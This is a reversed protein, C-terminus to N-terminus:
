PKPDPLAPPMAPPGPPTTTEARDLEPLRIAPGTIAAGTPLPGCLPCDAACRLGKAALARSAQKRVSASPDLRRAEDLAVHSAPVPPVMQGLSEAAEARVKPHDDERLAEVLAAVASPHCRWSAEALERAARDRRRWAPDHLGRIARDVRDAPAHCDPCRGAPAPDDPAALWLLSALLAPHM